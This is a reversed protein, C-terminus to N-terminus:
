KYNKNHFQKYADYDKKLFLRPFNDSSISLIEYENSQYERFLLKVSRIQSIYKKAAAANAFERCVILGRNADLTTMTVSLAENGGTMAHYDSLGSKLGSFRADQQAALIVYHVSAPSVTYELSGVVPEAAGSSDGPLTSGSESGGAPTAIPNKRIFQLVTNAWNSLASDAPNAAVFMSLMTDAEPYKGTGAIAIAKMLQYKKRFDGQNKFKEDAESVRNLVDKYQRQMLLGYTEDYHNSINEKALVSTPSLFGNNDEDDAASGRLLKAWESDPYQQQLRGNLASAEAPKNQRMKILYRTYLVEAGFEHDPFRRDLTDFTALAQPYDELHSYYGKGLNFLSKRLIDEVKKRADPTNPIAAFLSDEDPLGSDAEAVEEPENSGFDMSSAASRRWNDKLQRNGWRQKFDREGKRMLNPNAFYWSQAAGQNNMNNDPMAGANNAMSARYASDRMLREQARIYDRIVARQEKESLSALHLLSDQERVLTGPGSVRDLAAARQKALSFVPDQDATLLAAASDYFKKASFYENRAYYQDALAAYSLGKQKKNSQSMDISKRFHEIAQENQKNKLALKGMAFFVQDYYPRYKGDGSMKALMEATGVSTNNNVISNTAIHKRAYFDMELDPNLSLVERFFRDSEAYLQQQQLLQGTLFNSRLRLWNPLEKDSSVQALSQAAKKWDSRGLDIFAQELALRGELRAPFAADNRLMDLLTQAHGEKKSQALTRSLWLMAENKASKHELLGALGTKEEDSYTVPKSQDKSKDKAAQNKKKEEERKEAEARSVIYKFAAGANQYDGKYYYAQGVLLYLDDQWKARPDHIQIGLSSKRIITDMDPALKTSDRDPDFPFLTILSDYNDTNSRVMNEIAEDMKRDANFYYNYRTFTNQIVKRPLTWKKKRMDENSYQEQKKKIKIELALKMKEKKEAEKEEAKQKRLEARAERVKALSDSRLQRVKTLSDLEAMRLAKAAELASKLSDNYAKRQAILSDTIQKQAARMSDSTHKRIAALSDKRAERVQTVSDKYQKSERYTRLAALSDSVRKRHEKEIALKRQQDLRISDNYNRISDSYRRREAMVSDAIRKRAATASDSIRKQEAKMENIRNLRIREVSDQYRKSQRYNRILTLSDARQKQAARISDTNRKQASAANNNQQQARIETNNFLFCAVLFLGFVIRFVKKLKIGKRKACIIILGQQVNMGTCLFSFKIMSIGM